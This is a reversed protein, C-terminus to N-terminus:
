VDPLWPKIADLMRDLVHSRDEIFLAANSHLQKLEQPHTLLRHIAAEIEQDDRAIIAAEAMQMDSMIDRFNQIYPGTVVGRGCIAAELPNHGGIDQLSGAIIVADAICYLESLLGMTDLLLIDNNFIAPSSSQESWRSFSLGREHILQAVQDFREPHRPVIVTLLDPCAAHWTPWLDLLRADEGEHTSAILLIPRSLSSDLKERLATADVKPM